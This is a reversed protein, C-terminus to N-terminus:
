HLLSSDTGPPWVDLKCAWRRLLCGLSHDFDHGVAALKSTYQKIIATLIDSFPQGM